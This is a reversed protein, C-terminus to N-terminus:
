KSEMAVRAVVFDGCLVTDNVQCSVVYNEPLYLSVGGGFLFIGFMAHSAGRDGPLINIKSPGGLPCNVLQLGFKESNKGKFALGVGMENRQAKYFRFHRLNDFHRLDLLEASCPFYLGWDRWWPLAFQIKTLKEGFCSHSVNKEIAIVKGSVPSYILDNDYVGSFKRIRFLYLVALYSGVIFIFFLYFSFFWGVLILLLFTVHTRTSIFFSM